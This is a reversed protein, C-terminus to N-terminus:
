KTSKEQIISYIDRNNICNSYYDYHYIIISDLDLDYYFYYYDYLM